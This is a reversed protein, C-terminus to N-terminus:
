ELTEEAVERLTETKSESVLINEPKNPDQIPTLDYGRAAENFVKKLTEYIGEAQKEERYAELTKEKYPEKQFEFIKYGM